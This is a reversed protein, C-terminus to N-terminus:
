SLVGPVFDLVQARTVFPGINKVFRLHAQDEKVYYDRDAEKEFEVVFIHSIGHQIPLETLANQCGLGELATLPFPLYKGPPERHEHRPRRHFIQHLTPENSPSSM